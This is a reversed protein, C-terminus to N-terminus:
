WASQPRSGSVVSVFLGNLPGTSWGLLSHEVKQLRFRIIMSKPSHSSAARTSPTRPPWYIVVQETMLLQFPHPKLQISQPSLCCSWVRRRRLLPLPEDESFTMAVTATPRTQTTYVIVVRTARRPTPPTSSNVITPSVKFFCFLRFDVLCRCHTSEQLCSNYM